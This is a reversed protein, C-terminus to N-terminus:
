PNVHVHICAVHRSDPHLGDRGADSVVSLHRVQPSGAGSKEVVTGATSAAEPKRKSIGALLLLGASGCGIGIGIKQEKTLDQAMSGSGPAPPPQPPQTPEDTPTESPAESPVTGITATTTRRTTPM